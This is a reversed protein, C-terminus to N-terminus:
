SKMGTEPKEQRQKQRTESGGSEQETQRRNRRGRSRYLKTLLHRRDKQKRRFISTIM